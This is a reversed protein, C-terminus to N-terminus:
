DIMGLPLTFRCVLSKQDHPTPSDHPTSRPAHPSRTKLAERRRVLRM